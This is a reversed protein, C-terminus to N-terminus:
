VASKVFNLRKITENSEMHFYTKILKFGYKDYFARGISNRDFVEVEVESFKTAVFDVLASGIGKGQFYPLVFLGGIENNLMSIFGVVDGDMEYVWTETASLYINRLDDEAKVVFEANLFSHAQTSAQRWIEMVVEVDKSEYKRIM